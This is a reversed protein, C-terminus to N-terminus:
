FGQQKLYDHTKKEEYVLKYLFDYADNENDYEDIIYYGGREKTRYIKWVGYEDYCGILFPSNILKEVEIDWVTGKLLKEKEMRDLFEQKTMDNREGIVGLRMLQEISLPTTFQKGGVKLNLKSAQIIRDNHLSFKDNRQGGNRRM